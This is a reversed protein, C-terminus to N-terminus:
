QDIPAHNGDFLANTTPSRGAAWSALCHVASPVDMQLTEKSPGGRLILCFESGHDIEGSPLQIAKPARGPFIPFRSSQSIRGFPSCACLSNSVDSSRM